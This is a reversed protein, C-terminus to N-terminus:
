VHARGIEKTTDKDTFLNMTEKDESFIGYYIKNTKINRVKRM